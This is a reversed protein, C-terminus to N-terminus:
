VYIDLQKNIENNINMFHTQHYREISERFLKKITFIFKYINNSFELSLVFIFSHKSQILKLAHFM